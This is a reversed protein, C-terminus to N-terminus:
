SLSLTTSDGHLLTVEAELRSEALLERGRQFADGVAEVAIVHRAGARVAERAWLLREGTGIDLFVRDRALLEVAHQFRANRTEDEGIRRYLYTDYCPYEGMSPWLSPEDAGREHEDALVGAGAVIASGVPEEESTTRSL